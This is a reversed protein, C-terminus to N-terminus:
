RAREQYVDAFKAGLDVDTVLALRLTKKYQQEQEGM